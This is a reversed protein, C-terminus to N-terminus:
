PRKVSKTVKFDFAVFIDGILSFVMSLLTMSYKLKNDMEAETNEMKEFIAFFWRVRICVGTYGSMSAYFFQSVHGERVAM